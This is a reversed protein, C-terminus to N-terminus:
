EKQHMKVKCQPLTKPWKESIKLIQQSKRPSGRWNNRRNQPLKPWKQGNKPWKQVMKPGFIKKGKKVSFGSFGWFILHTATHLNQPFIQGGGRPPLTGIPKSGTPETWKRAGALGQRSLATSRPAALAASAFILTECSRFHCGSRTRWSYPVGLTNKIM